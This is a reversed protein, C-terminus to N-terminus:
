QLSQFYLIADWIPQQPGQRLSSLHATAAGNPNRIILMSRYRSFTFNFM